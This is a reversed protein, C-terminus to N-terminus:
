TTETHASMRGLRHWLWPTPTHTSISAIYTASGAKVKAFLCPPRFQRVPALKGPRGGLADEDDSLWAAGAVGAVGAVCRCLSVAVLAVATERLM